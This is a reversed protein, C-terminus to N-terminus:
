LQAQIQALEQTVQSFWGFLGATAASMGTPPEAPPPAQGKRCHRQAGRLDWRRPLPLRRRSTITAATICPPTSAQGVIGTVFKGYPGFNIRM